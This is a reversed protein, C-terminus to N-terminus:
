YFAGTSPLFTSWADTECFSMEAPCNQVMVSGGVVESVPVYDGGRRLAM